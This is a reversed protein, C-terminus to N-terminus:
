RPPCPMVFDWLGINEGGTRHIDRIILVGTEFCSEPYEEQLRVMDVEKDELLREFLIALDRVQNRMSLTWFFAPNRIAYDYMELRERIKIAADYREPIRLRKPIAPAHSPDTKTIALFAVDLHPRHRRIHIRGSIDLRLDPNGYRHLVTIYALLEVDSCNELDAAAQALVHIM